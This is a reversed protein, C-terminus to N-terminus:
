FFFFSFDDIEYIKRIAVLVTVVIEDGTEWASIIFYFVFIEALRNRRRTRQKRNVLTYEYAM